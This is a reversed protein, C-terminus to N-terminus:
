PLGATWYSGTRVVLVTVNDRAGRDLVQAVLARCTAAADDGGAALMDAIDADDMHETLGDSCLLFLDDSLLDGRVWDCRLAEGVGVARTIVNRRPWTAAAEPPLRGADLLDQLETHDRTMGHLAGGRWLYARSDGAWGLAYTGDSILLAVLTAGVTADLRDAHDRVDAHAQDMRDAFRAQLDDLSTAPGVTAALAVIRESAWDGARHGGMGDAVLFVGLDPRSLAADENQTRVRGTDTAFAADLIEADPM